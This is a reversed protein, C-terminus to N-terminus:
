VHRKLIELADDISDASGLIQYGDHVVVDYCNDIQDFDITAFFVGNFYVRTHTSTTKNTTVM